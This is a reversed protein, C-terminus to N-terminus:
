DERLEVKIAGGGSKAAQRAKAYNVLIHRMMRAAAAFFHNRNQWHPNTQGALHLYAENVLATTQLTHDAREASMYYHALKRLEDYVLPAIQDTSAEKWYGSEALLKTLQEPSPSPAIPASM